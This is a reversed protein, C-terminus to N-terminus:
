SNVEAGTAADFEVTQASGTTFEDDYTITVSITGNANSSITLTNATAAGGLTLTKNDTTKTIGNITYNITFTLEAGAAFFADNSLNSGSFVVSRPSTITVNNITGSFGSYALNFKANKAKGCDISVNTTQGANVSVGTKSGTYFAAGFNSNVTYSAAENAYNSVTVSYTGSAFGTTSLETGIQKNYVDSSGNNVVAYWSSADAVNQVARTDMMNDNSVSLSISGTAATKFMDVENVCSTTGFMAALAAAVFFLNKKM